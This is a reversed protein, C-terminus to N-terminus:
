TQKLSMYNETFWCYNEYFEIINKNKLTKKIRNFAARASNHDKYNNADSFYRYWLPIGMVEANKPINDNLVIKTGAAYVKKLVEVANIESLSLKMKFGKQPLTNQDIPVLALSANEPDIDSLSILEMHFLFKLGDEGDKQKKITLQGIRHGSDDENLKMLELETDVAGLLSSHGRQGRAEDKGSHHVLLVASGTAQQLKGIMAIFAGMDESANENGGAFARALTDIVILKPKIGNSKIEKILRALDDNKSRLNLQRKLFYLNPVEPMEHRKRLAEHRKKLGAGGEGAIYVVDGQETDRGFIRWGLAIHAAIYLAVFSKFTGPKGYLSALSNSPLLDKVLWKVPEEILETSPILRFDDVPKPVPAFEDDFTFTTSAPASIENLIEGTEPNFQVGDLELPNKSVKRPPGANAHEAVKTEWQKAAYQWKQRFISIGRGERELLDANSSVGDFPLRSKVKTIYLDFAKQCETAMFADNIMPAERYLDVMRGWILRTMYDERGDQILGFATLIHDPTATKQGAPGGSRGGFEEALRDIENCLWKPILAIDMEWPELGTMWEYRDGSEHMSPPCMIFGGQGRIDVGISTKCTPPIWEGDTRFLYQRGGGGTKQGVTELDGAKEQKNMMDYWWSSAAANKHTDLDIVVLNSCKGTIIGMNDRTAHDGNPGYWRQFTLDPALTNELERWEPLAPRKWQQAEKPHKAPVVQLGLSRYMEAFESAGAFSPDFSTKSM